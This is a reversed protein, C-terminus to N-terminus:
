LVMWVFVFGSTLWPPDADCPAGFLTSSTVSASGRMDSPSRLDVRVVEPVVFLTV